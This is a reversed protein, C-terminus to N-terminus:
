TTAEREPLRYSEICFSMQTLIIDNFSSWFIMVPLYKLLSSFRKSRHVYRGFDLDNENAASQYGWTIM